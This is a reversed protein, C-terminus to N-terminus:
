PKLQQKRGSIEWCGLGAGGHLGCQAGDGSQDAADRAAVPAAAACLLQAALRRASGEAQGGAAAVQGM